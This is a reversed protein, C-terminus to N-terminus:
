DAAKVVTRNCIHQRCRNWCKVPNGLGDVVAHIKTNLGDRTRGIAKSEGGKEPSGNASQHVM